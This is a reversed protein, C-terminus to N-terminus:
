RSQCARRVNYLQSPSNGGEALMIDKGFSMAYVGFSQVVSMVLMATVLGTWHEHM